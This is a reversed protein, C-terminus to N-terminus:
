RAQMLEFALSYPAPEARPRGQDRRRHGDHDEHGGAEHDVIVPFYRDGVQKIGYETANKKDDM